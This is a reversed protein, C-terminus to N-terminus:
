SQLNLEGDYRIAFQNLANKWDKVPRKMAELGGDSSCSKSPGGHRESVAQAKEGIEPDRQKAIRDRQDYLHSGAPLRCDPEALTAECGSPCRAVM